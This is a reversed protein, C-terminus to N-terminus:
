PYTIVPANDPVEYLKKLEALMAQSKAWYTVDSFVGDGDVSVCVGLKGHKNVLYRNPMSLYEKKILTWGDFTNGSDFYNQRLHHESIGTSSWSSKAIICKQGNHMHFGFCYLAHGWEANVPPKPNLLDVWGANDGQVGIVCGKFDRITAAVVDINKGNVSYYGAEKGDQEEWATIDARNRMTLETYENPKPDPAETKTAQGHDTLEAGGDRLYAGGQPLFIRSYLSRRSWDDLHLQHHYYSWAHAVCSLSAGQDESGPDPLRFEKSWDVQVAGM